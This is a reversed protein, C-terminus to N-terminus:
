GAAASLRDRDRAQWLRDALEGAQEQSAARGLAHLAIALTGTVAAEGYAHAIEGRWLKRLLEVDLLDDSEAREPLLRPWVSEEALGDRVSLVTTNADPRREIEGGDGKFVSANREGLLVAAQQHIHAYAPHFISQLTCPARLPNLLRTLTHVPSRLGLANRLEIIRHLPPALVELPMFAFRRQQLQQSVQQWDRCVPQGLAQLASETYLRGATHGSTGHMFVRIGADALAFAALLFWPQHQRKGAYSSWDLDAGLGEPPPVPLQRRAASVFGAIEEPSEEKVRLLMLFAGLQVDLVEGRMIMGMADEAEEFSLSRAGKKGKGVARVYRAFPHEDPDAILTSHAHTAM